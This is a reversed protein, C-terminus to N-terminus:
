EQDKIKFLSEQLEIGPTGSQINLTVMDGYRNQLKASVKTNIIRVMKVIRVQSLQKSNISANLIIKRREALTPLRNASM